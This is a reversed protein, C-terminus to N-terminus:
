MEDPQMYEPPKPMEPFGPAPGQGSTAPPQEQGPAPEPGAEELAEEDPAEEDGAEWSVQGPVPQAPQQPPVQAVQSPAIPAQQIGAYPGSTVSQGSYARGKAYPRDFDPISLDVDKETPIVPTEDPNKGTTKNLVFLVLVVLLVVLVISGVAIGVILGINLESSSTSDDDGDDDDGGTPPYWPIDLSFPGIVAERTLHKPSADRAVIKLMYSGDPLSTVNWIFASETMDKKLLKWDAESAEKWYLSYTVNDGDPDSGTWILAINFVKTLNAIGDEDSITGNFGKEPYLWTVEPKDPANYYFPGYEMQVKKRYRSDDTATVRLKYRGEELTTLDLDYSSEKLGSALVTWNDDPVPSVEIKYTLAEDQDPDEVNWSVTLVDEKYDTVDAPGEIPALFVPDDPDYVVFRRETYASRGRSDTVTFRMIYEGDGLLESTAFTKNAMEKDLNGLFITKWEDTGVIKVSFNGIMSDVMDWAQDEEDEIKWGVDLTGTVVQDMVPSLIWAEPQDNNYIEFVDTIAETIMGDRDMLQIWLKYTDHDPFNVTNLKFVGTNAIFDTLTQLNFTLTYWEPELESSISINVLLDTMIDEDDSSNWKVDALGSLSAGAMPSILELVPYDPNNITLVYKNGSIVRNGDSDEAVIRFWYKSDPVTKTDFTYKGTNPINQLLPQWINGPVAYELDIKLDTGDQPDNATFYLDLGGKVKNINIGSYTTETDITVVPHDAQLTDFLKSFTRRHTHRLTADRDNTKLDEVVMAKLAWNGRPLADIVEFSVNFSMQDGSTSAWGGLIVYPDYISTRDILNNYANTLMQSNVSSDGGARGLMGDFMVTPTATVNYVNFRNGSAGTEYPDNGPELARHYEILSFQNEGREQLIRDLTEEASPCYFCDTATFLEVLPRRTTGSSYTNGDVPFMYSNAVEMYNYFRDSNSVDTGPYQDENQLFVVLWLDEPKWDFNMTFTSGLHYKTARTPQQPEAFTEEQVGFFMFLASVTLLATLLLAPLRGRRDTM